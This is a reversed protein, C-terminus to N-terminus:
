TQEYHLCIIVFVRQKKRTFDRGRKKERSFDSLLVIIRKIREDVDKGYRGRRTTSVMELGKPM